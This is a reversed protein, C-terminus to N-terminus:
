EDRLVTMPSVRAARLAPITAAITAILVVVVSAAAYSPTNVAATEYLLSQIVKGSWASVILGLAAGALALRLGKALVMTVITHSNAGLASRIAIERTRM